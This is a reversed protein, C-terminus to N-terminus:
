RSESDCRKRREVKDTILYEEPFSCVSGARQKQEMIRSAYEIADDMFSCSDVSAPAAESEVSRREEEVPGRNGAAEFSRRGTEASAAADVDDANNVFTEEDGDLECKSEEGELQGTCLAMECSSVSNSSRHRSSETPGSASTTKRTSVSVPLTIEINSEIPNVVGIVNGDKFAPHELAEDSGDAPSNTPLSLAADDIAREESKCIRKTENSLVFSETRNNLGQDLSAGLSSRTSKSRGISRSQKHCKEFIIKQLSPPAPVPPPAPPKYRGM